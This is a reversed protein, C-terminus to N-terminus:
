LWMGASILSDPWGPLSLDTRVATYKCGLSANANGLAKHKFEFIEPFDVEFWTVTSPLPNEAAPLYEYKGTENIKRELHLRWPRADLGAGLVCIQTFGDKIAKLILEDIKKTRLAIGTVFDERVLAKDKFGNILWQSGPEGGLIHGYPDFILGEEGKDTEWARLSAVGRATTGVGKREPDQHSVNAASNTTDL